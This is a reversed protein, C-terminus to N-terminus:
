RLVTGSHERLPELVIVPIRRGRARHEYARYGPYLAV